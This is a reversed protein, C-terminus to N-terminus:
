VTWIRTSGDVGMAALVGGGPSLAVRAVRSTAGTFPSGVADGSVTNWVRIGADSVAVLRTGENNVAFPSGYSGLDIDKSGLSRGTPSSVDWTTVTAKGDNAYVTTLRTGAANLEMSDPMEPVDISSRPEGTSAKWIAMQAWSYSGSYTSAALWTGDESVDCLFYYPDPQYDHPVRVTRGLNGGPPYSVVGHDRTDALCRVHDARDGDVHDTEQGNATDWRRIGDDGATLLSTGDSNFTMSTIAGTAMTARSSDEPLLYGLLLLCCMLIAGSVVFRGRRRAIVRAPDPARRDAIQSTTILREQVRIHRFQYTSGSQRLLQRDRADDLFTMLRWPLRRRVGLALRVLLFRPWARTLLVLVGFVVGAGALSLVLVTVSVGDDFSGGMGLQLVDGYPKHSWGAVAWVLLLHVAQTVVTLPLVSTALVIGALLPAVLSSTRDQRLQRLPTTRSSREPSADVWNYAALAAGFSAALALGMWILRVFAYVNEAYWSDTVSIAVASGALLPVVPVATLLVGTVFGRRLRVASGRLTFSLRGPPREPVAFWVFMTLLAFVGGTGAGIGLAEPLDDSKHLFCGVSVLIMMLVGLTIGVVPGTWRSLLRGSMRWWDLDRERHRHLHRALYELWKQARQADREGWDAYSADIAKDLLHDEVGHRSTCALLEEPTGLHNRYVTRALTLMLPTSLAKVMPGQPDARMREKITEIGTQPDSTRSVGDLYTVAVDVPVPRVEVVPARRLVPEGGEIVDQYEAARCTVIIGGGDRCAENIGTVASRRAQEPMEDLGDLVPLLLGDALLQRPIEGRGHFYAAALTHVIWDKLSDEVPDWSSASLLVPVPADDARDKLLGLLLMIALVTKGAGPEGLVVLRGSTVRRYGDALLGAATDFDGHLRGELEQRRFRAGTVGLVSEFSDAVPRDTASWELPIVSPDRLRRAETEEEWQERVDSALMQAQSQLSDVPRWRPPPVVTCALSLVSVVLGAVAGVRGSVADSGVAIWVCLWLLVLGLVGLLVAGRRRRRLHERLSEM